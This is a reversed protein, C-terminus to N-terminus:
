HILLYYHKTPYLLEGNALWYSNNTWVERLVVTYLKVILIFLVYHTILELTFIM